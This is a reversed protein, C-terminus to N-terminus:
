DEENEGELLEDLNGSVVPPNIVVLGEDTERFVMEQLLPMIDTQEWLCKQLAMLLAGAAQDSLQM